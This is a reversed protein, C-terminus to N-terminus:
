REMTFHKINCEMFEDGVVEFDFQEYFEVATVQAHLYIKQQSVNPDNEIDELMAQMIAKGVGLKRSNLLVAFREMKIGHETLRWRATGCAKGQQDYAIFHTSSDEFEDYEEEPRVKQEKIFVEERVKFAQQLEEKNVVKHVTIM